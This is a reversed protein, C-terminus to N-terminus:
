RAMRVIGSGIVKRKEMWSREKQWMTKGNAHYKITFGDIIETKKVPVSKKAPKKSEEEEPPLKMM